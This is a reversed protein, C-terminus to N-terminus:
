SLSVDNVLDVLDTGIHASYVKLADKEVEIDFVESEESHLIEGDGFFELKKNPTLNKISIKESEFSIFNPDDIPLNGKAVQLICQILKQRSDHTLISVNFKGDNNNTKPAINFTGALMPQNNVLICSSKVNGSFEKSEIELNYEEFNVGLLEQAVFFSYISKGSFKMIKKFVPYKRRITNIKKAVEGGLGIGGNTAMLRNNIRILDINTIQQNRICQCIKKINENMGLESALDNATGGPIVLLGIDKNALNQILTNVTGDGGVSVVADVNNQIDEKLNEHLEALGNPTRFNLNSRFLSRTIKGKWFDYDTNAARQNLYVSINQMTIEERLVGDYRKYTGSDVCFSADHLLHM